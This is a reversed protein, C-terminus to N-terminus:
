LTVIAESRLENNSMAKDNLANKVEEVVFIMIIAIAIVGVLILIEVSGMVNEKRGKYPEM